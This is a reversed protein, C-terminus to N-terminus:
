FAECSSSAWIKRCIYTKTCLASNVKNNEYFKFYQLFLRKCHSGKMWRKFWLLDQDIQRENTKFRIMQWGQFFRLYWFLASVWNVELVRPIGVKLVKLTVFTKLKLWGTFWILPCALPFRATWNFIRLDNVLKWTPHWAVLLNRPENLNRNAKYFSKPQARSIDGPM